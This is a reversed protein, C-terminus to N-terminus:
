KTTSSLARDIIEFLNPLNLPKTLYAIFGAALGREEDGLMANASIAIVPIAATDVDSKIVALAAFGDMGPLNIDMLILDPRETRIMELGLEATKADLLQINKKPLLVQHMLRLNMPNDEIYLVKFQKLEASMPESRISVQEPEIKEHSQENVPFEIWFVSGEGVVSAFGIQGGMSEIVRKTIVLGIGTGEVEGREEGLRDFAEFIRSQKELPIGPGTDAVSVRLKGAEIRCSVSVKGQASNYKIANSLLNVIAQRLRVHDADITVHSCVCETNSLQINKKRALFDVMLLSEQLVADLAVPMISLQIKGAEIRALDILDNVLALLHKGASEIEFVHNRAEAPIGNDMDLIQAYGLIANLPTRLEHSMSALFESKAHSAAEALTKAEALRNSSERIVIESEKLATIDTRISIYQYPLGNADMFPVISSEVWYLCGNKARNCITGSWVKGSSIDDWIKKYFEPPHTGSKLLRHNKGLLEDFSYGSIDTFKQNVYIINGAVDAVSVIAHEDLAQRQREQAYRAARLSEAQELSRRFHCAHMGVVSVLHMPEVPKVLFHEGGRDLAQLQASVNEEASLYVIPIEAYHEDDDLIAVLEPGTCQPMHMDLLVVEAPFEALVELVTLPNEVERVEMGAARLMNSHVALEIPSDDVVLVRYPRTPPTATLEVIVRMLAERDIPKSLYRAVGARHAILKASIDKRDCLLILPVFKLAGAKLETISRVGAEKDDTLYMDFIVAAPPNHDILSASFQALTQFTEYHYGVSELLFGLWASQQEDSDVISIRESLSTSLPSPLFNHGPDASQSALKVLAKRLNQLSAEPLSVDKPLDAVLREFEHACDVVDMLQHTQANKALDGAAHQLVTLSEHMGLGVEDLTHQMLAYIEPLHAIFEGRLRTLKPQSSSGM